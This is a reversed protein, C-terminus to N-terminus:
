DSGDTIRHSRAKTEVSGGPTDVVWGLGTKTIKITLIDDKDAIQNVHIFVSDPFATDGNASVQLLQTRFLEGLMRQIEDAARALMQATGVRGLLQNHEAETRLQGILESM